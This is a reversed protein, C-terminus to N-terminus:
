LYCNIIGSDRRRIVPIICRRMELFGPLQDSLKCGEQAPYFKEPDGGPDFRM